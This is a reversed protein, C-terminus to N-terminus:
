IYVRSVLDFVNKIERLTKIELIQKKRLINIERSINDMKEQMNNKRKFTRLVNVIYKKFTGM